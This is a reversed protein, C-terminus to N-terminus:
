WGLWARVREWLTQPQAADRRVTTGAILDTQAVQEEGLYFSLRGIVTGVEVPAQLADTLEVQARVTEGEGLPYVAEQATVASV